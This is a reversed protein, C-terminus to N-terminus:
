FHLRDEPEPGREAPLRSLLRPRRAGLATRLPSAAVATRGVPSMQAISGGMDLHIAGKGASILLLIRVPAPSSLDPPPSGTGLGPPLTTRAPRPPLRPASRTAPLVWKGANFGRYRSESEEALLRFPGLVDFSDTDCRSGLRERGPSRLPPGRSPSEAVRPHRPPVELRRSPAPGRLHWWRRAAPPRGYPRRPTRPFGEQERAGGGGGVRFSGRGGPRLLFLSGEEEERTCGLATEGCATSSLAVCLAETGRPLHLAVRAPVHDAVVQLV